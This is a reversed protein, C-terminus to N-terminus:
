ILIRFGVVALSCTAGTTLALADQELVELALEGLSDLLLVVPSTPADVFDVPAHFVEM